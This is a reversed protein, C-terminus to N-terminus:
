RRFDEAATVLSEASREGVLIITVDGARWSVAQAGNVQGLSYERGIREFGVVSEVGRVALLVLPGSSDRGSVRVSSHGSISGFAVEVPRFGSVLNFPVRGFVRELTLDPQAEAGPAVQLGTFLSAMSAQGLESRGTIRSVMVGAFIFVFVAAVFAWSFRGVFSETQTQADIARIQDKARALCDPAEHKLSKERLCQRVAEAWKLEAQSEPCNKAAERLQAATAGKVEGSALSHIEELTLKM